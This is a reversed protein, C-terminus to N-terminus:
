GAPRLGSRHRAVVASHVARSWTGEGRGAFLPALYNLVSRAHQKFVLDPITHACEM